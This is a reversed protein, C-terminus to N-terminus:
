VSRGIMFLIGRPGKSKNCRMCAPIINDIWNAGGRVIPIVHDVTLATDSRLCYACAHGFEVVRDIWESETFQGPAARLRAQRNNITATWKEPNAKRWAACNALARATNAAYWAAARAKCAARRAPQALRARDKLRFYEPDRDRIAKLKERNRAKNEEHHAYYHRLSAERLLRSKREAASEGPVM